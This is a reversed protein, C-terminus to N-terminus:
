PLIVANTIPGGLPAAPQPVKAIMQAISPPVLKNLPEPLM